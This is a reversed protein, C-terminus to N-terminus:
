SRTSHSCRTHSRSKFTLEAAYTHLEFIVKNGFMERMMDEFALPELEGDFLRECSALFTAYLQAATPKQNPGGTEAVSVNSTVSSEDRVASTIAQEGVTSPASAPQPAGLEEATVKIAAIRSYM